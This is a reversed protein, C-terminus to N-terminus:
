TTRSREADGYWATKGVLEPSNTNNFLVDGQRLWRAERDVEDKSVFKVDALSIEGRGTVNMPRLHPIGDDRNYKGCAFGTQLESAVEGVTTRAWGEPLEDTEDETM